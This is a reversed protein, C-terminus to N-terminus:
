DARGFQQAVFGQGPAGGKRGQMIQWQGGAPARAKHHNFAAHDDGIARGILDQGGLKAAPNESYTQGAM